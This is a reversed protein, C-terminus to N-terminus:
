INKCRFSNKRREIFDIDILDFDTVMIKELTSKIRSIINEIEKKNYLYEIGSANIAECFERYEMIKNKIINEM